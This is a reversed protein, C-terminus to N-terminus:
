EKASEAFNPIDKRSNVVEDVLGYDKAESATMFYDRDCDIDVKELPQGTHHAIIGKTRKNLKYLFEV